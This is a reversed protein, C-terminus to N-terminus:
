TCFNHFAHFFVHYEHGEFATKIQETLKQFRHLIFRDIEPLKEFSVQDKQVDFDHLNGLMYRFTNRIKRYAESLRKLIEDSLRIDERYNESSVWLRIIEAGYKSIIEQPSIVNGASKSMKKGAGDVVYGHTLVSKYPARERTKVSALLSSHFWGRHQDSGELYLDSPFTLENESEVVASFSVGSDFWVDLIDTEQEFDRGGCKECVTGELLLEGPTKSFWVDAGEREMMKAVHDCIEKSALAHGCEKCYFVTIPVGWSRQRSICWDPRNEIMKYIREEGWGPVWEVKRIESLAKERLRDAEMSIFWQSTGRFIVPKKCRWCHPYSHSIKEEKLLFGERELLGSIAGNADWVKMGGFQELDKVFKGSDDVPNYVELGYKLGVTYDDQGHGPATHVLGTGAELTVHDGLIVPSERGAFPHRYVLGELDTGNVTELVSYQDIGLKGMVEGLLDSAIVLVQNQVDVFAYQFDPKVAVALNAPITWPTTTWIVLSADKGNLVPFKTGSDATVPFRVYISPSSHTDYEVEAEALATRCAMCWHIPKLGKYLSGNKFFKGLERVISAEYGFNMTLYPKEWRGLIGLRRFEAEQIGVFKEAYERCVKRIENKTMERKKKGLKKDVQHEIPLGHCDWGPIYPADYGEMTKIKIVLDKLIKNLAHGQHINGNAYPPGDHLIYKPSGARTRRIEKYLGSDDWEKLLREELKALNARMPFETQPLNLTNKYDKTM